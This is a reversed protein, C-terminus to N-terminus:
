FPYVSMKFLATYFFYEPPTWADEALTKPDEDRHTVIPLLKRHHCMLTVCVTPPQCRGRMAPNQCCSSNAGTATQSLLSVLTAAFSCLVPNLNNYSYISTPYLALSMYNPPFENLNFHNYIESMHVFCIRRSHTNLTLASLSLECKHLKTCWLQM